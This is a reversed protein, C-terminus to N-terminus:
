RPIDRAALRRAARRHALFKMAFLDASGEIPVGAIVSGLTIGAIARPNFNAWDLSARDGTLRSVSRREL